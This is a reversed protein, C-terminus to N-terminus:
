VYPRIIADILLTRLMIVHTEKINHWLLVFYIFINSFSVQILFMHLFFLTLTIFVPEKEDSTLTNGYDSM